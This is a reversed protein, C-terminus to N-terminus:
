MCGFGSESHVCAELFSNYFKGYEEHVTPVKLEVTCTEAFFHPSNDERYRITIKEELGMPPLSELGTAFFLFEGLKSSGFESYSFVTTVIHFLLLSSTTTSNGLKIFKFLM